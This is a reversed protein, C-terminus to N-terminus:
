RFSSFLGLTRFIQQHKLKVPTIKVWCSVPAELPQCAPIGEERGQAKVVGLFWMSKPEPGEGVDEGELPGALRDAFGGLGSLEQVVAGGVAQLDSSGPGRMRQGTRYDRPDSPVNKAVGCELPLSLGASSPVRM